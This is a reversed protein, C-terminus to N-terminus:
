DPGGQVLYCALMMSFGRQLDEPDRYKFSDNLDAAFDPNIGLHLSTRVEDSVARDETQMSAASTLDLRPKRM